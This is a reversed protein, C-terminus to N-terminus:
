EKPDVTVYFLGTVTYVNMYDYIFHGIYESYLAKNTNNYINVIISSNSFQLTESYSIISCFM